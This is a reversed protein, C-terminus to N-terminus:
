YPPTDAVCRCGRPGICRGKGGGTPPWRPCWGKGGGRAQPPGVLVGKREEAQQSGAFVGVRAGAELKPRALWYVKGKRRLLAHLAVLSVAGKRRGLPASLWCCCEEGRACSIGKRRGPATREELPRPLWGVALQGAAESPFQGAWCGVALQGAM